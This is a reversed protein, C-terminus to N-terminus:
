TTKLSEPRETANFPWEDLMEQTLPDFQKPDIQVRPIPPVSKHDVKTEVVKKSFTELSGKRVNAIMQKKKKILKMIEEESDYFEAFKAMQEKNISTFPSFEKPSKSEIKRRNMKRSIFERTAFFADDVKSDIVDLISWLRDALSIRNNVENFALRTWNAKTKRNFYLHHTDNIRVHTIKMSKSRLARWGSTKSFNSIFKLFWLKIPNTTVRFTSIYM